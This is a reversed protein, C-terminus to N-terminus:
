LTNFYLVNYLIFKGGSIPKNRLKLIKLLGKQGLVTPVGQELMAPIVGHGDMAHTTNAQQEKEQPPDPHSNGPFIRANCGLVVSEGV